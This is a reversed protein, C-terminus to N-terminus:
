PRWWEEMQSRPDWELGSGGCWSAPSSGSAGVKVGAVVVLVNQEVLSFATSNCVARVVAKLGYLGWTDVSTRRNNSLPLWFDYKVSRAM